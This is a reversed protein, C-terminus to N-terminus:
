NERLTSVPSLYSLTMLFSNIFVINAGFGVIQHVMTGGTLGVNIDVEVGLQGAVFDRIHEEDQHTDKSTQTDQKGEEDDDDDEKLLAEEPEHGGDETLKNANTGHEAETGNKSKQLVIRRGLGAAGNVRPKKSKPEHNHVPTQKGLGPAEVPDDLGGLLHSCLDDGIGIHHSHNGEEGDGHKNEEDDPCSDISEFHEVLISIIVEVLSTIDTIGWSDIPGNIHSHNTKEEKNSGNKGELNSVKGLLKVIGFCDTEGDVIRQQHQNHTSANSPSQVIGNGRHHRHL